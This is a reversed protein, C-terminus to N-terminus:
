QAGAMQKYKSRLDDISRVAQKVPSTSRGSVNPIIPPPTPAVVNNQPSPAVAMAQQQQAPTMVRGILSMVQGVAESAPIDRQGFQWALAGRNICEDRFAGVRGVKADFAQAISQVEPRSMEQNLEFDRTQVLSQEYAQKYGQNEESLLFNARNNQRVQEIEAQQAPDLSMEKLRKEAWAFLKEEPINLDKFFNTFDDNRVHHSLMRLAKDQEHFRKVVTGAESLKKNLHQFGESEEYVKRLAEETEKDKILSQIEKPFEKEKNNVKFKFNPAYAPAVPVTPLADKSAAETSKEGAASAAQKEEKFVGKKANEIAERAKSAIPSTTETPKASVTPEVPAEPAAATEGSTTSEVEAEM